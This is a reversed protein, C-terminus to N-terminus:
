IKSIGEIKNNTGPEADFQPSASDKLQCPAGAQLPRPRNLQYRPAAQPPGFLQLRRYWYSRNSYKPPKKSKTASNQLLIYQNWLPIECQSIHMSINKIFLHMSIHFPQVLLRSLM